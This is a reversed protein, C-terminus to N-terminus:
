RRVFFLYFLVESKDGQIKNKVFLSGAVVKKTQNAILLILMPQSKKFGQM